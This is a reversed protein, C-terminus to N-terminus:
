WNDVSALYKTTAVSCTQLAEVMVKYGVATSDFMRAFNGGTIRKIESLQEDIPGRNNFTAMAGNRM